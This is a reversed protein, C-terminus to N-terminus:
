YWMSLSTILLKKDSVVRQYTIRRTPNVTDLEIQITNKHVITWILDRWLRLNDSIPQYSIELRPDYHSTTFTSIRYRLFCSVEHLSNFTIVLSQDHHAHTHTHTYIHMRTPTYIHTHVKYYIPKMISWLCLM